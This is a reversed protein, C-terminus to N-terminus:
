KKWKKRFEYMMRKAQAAVAQYHEREPCPSYDTTVKEWIGLAIDRSIFIDIVREADVMREIANDRQLTTKALQAELHLIRDTLSSFETLAPDVTM